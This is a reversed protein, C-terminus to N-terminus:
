LYIGFELIWIEFLILRWNNPIEFKLLQLKNPIQSKGNSIKAASVRDVDGSVKM